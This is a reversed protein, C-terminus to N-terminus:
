SVPMVPPRTALLRLKGHYGFTLIAPDDCGATFEILLEYLLVIRDDLGATSLNHQKARDPKVALSIKPGILLNRTHNLGPRLFYIMAAVSMM